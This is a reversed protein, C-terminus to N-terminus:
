IANRDVEAWKRAMAEGIEKRWFKRMRGAVKWNHIELSDVAVRWVAQEWRSRPKGVHRIGGFCRGM